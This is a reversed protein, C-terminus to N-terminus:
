WQPDQFKSSCPPIVHSVWGRLNEAVELRVLDPQAERQRGSTREVDPVDPGGQEVPRECPMETALQHQPDLVGVDGAVRRATELRDETGEAPQLEVVVLAGHDTARERRVQLRLAGVTIRRYGMRQTLAALGV